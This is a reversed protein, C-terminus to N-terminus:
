ARQSSQEALYQEYVGPDNEISKVFLEERTLGDKSVSNGLSAELQAIVDSNDAVGRKGVEEFVKTESAYELCKQIVDVDAQDLRDVANKMARGLDVASVPLSYTKAVELFEADRRAEREAEAVQQASKAIEELSGIYELAKSVAQNRQEDTLAKSFEEEFSRRASSDSKGVERKGFAGAGALEPEQDALDPNVGEDDEEVEDTYQYARGNADFVIDGITLTNVDIPNEDSDFIQVDDGGPEISKAIAVKAHQNAGKRVLSVEDIKLDSLKTM